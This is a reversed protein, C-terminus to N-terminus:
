NPSVPSSPLYVCEDLFVKVTQPNVEHALVVIGSESHDGDVIEADTAIM